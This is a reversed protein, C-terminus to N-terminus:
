CQLCPKPQGYFSINPLQRRLQSFSFSEFVKLASFYLSEPMLELKYYKPRSTLPGPITDFPFDKRFRNQFEKVSIPEARKVEPAIEPSLPFFTFNHKMDEFQEVLTKTRPPLSSSINEGVFLYVLSETLHYSTPPLHREKLLASALVICQNHFTHIAKGSFIPAGFLGFAVNRAQHEEEEAELLDKMLPTLSSGFIQALTEDDLTEFELLMSSSLFSLFSLYYSPKLSLPNQASLWDSFLVEFESKSIELLTDFAQGWKEPEEESSELQELLENHSKDIYKPTYRYIAPKQKEQTKQKGKNKPKPSPVPVTLKLEYIEIIKKIMFILWSITEKAEPRSIYTTFTEEKQLPHSPSLSSEIFSSLDESEILNKCLSGHLLFIALAMSFPNEGRILPLVDYENFSRGEITSAMPSDRAFIPFELVAAECHSSSVLGLSLLFSLIHASDLKELPPSRHISAVLSGTVSEWALEFTKTAEKSKPDM